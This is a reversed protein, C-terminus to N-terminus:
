TWTPTPRHDCVARSAGLIIEATHMKKQIERAIALGEPDPSNHLTSM